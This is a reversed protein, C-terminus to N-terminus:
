RRLECDAAAAVWFWWEFVIYICVVASPRSSRRKVWTTTTHGRDFVKARDAVDFLGRGYNVIV